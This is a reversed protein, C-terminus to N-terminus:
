DIVTHKRSTGSHVSNIVIWIATMFEWFINQPSRSLRGLAV